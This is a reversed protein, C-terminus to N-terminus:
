KKAAPKKKNQFLFPYRKKDEDKIKRTVITNDDVRIQIKRTAGKGVLKARPKENEVAMM